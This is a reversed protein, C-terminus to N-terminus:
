LNEVELCVELLWNHLIGGLVVTDALANDVVIKFVVGDMNELMAYLVRTDRLADEKLSVFDGLGIAASIILPFIQVNTHVKINVVANETNNSTIIESALEVTVLAVLDIGILVERVVWEDVGSGHDVHLLVRRIQSLVLVVNLNRELTASRVAVKLTEKIVVTFHKGEANKPLVTAM